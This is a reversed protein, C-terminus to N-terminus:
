KHNVDDELVSQKSGLWDPTTDNDRDEEEPDVFFKISTNTSTQGRMRNLKAMHKVPVCWDSDRVTKEQTSMEMVLVDYQKRDSELNTTWEQQCKNSGVKERLTGFKVTQGDRESQGAKARMGVKATERRERDRGKQKEVRQTVSSPRIVQSGVTTASAMSVEVIARPEKVKRCVACSVM